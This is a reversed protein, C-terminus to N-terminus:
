RASSAVLPYNGINLDKLFADINHVRGLLVDRYGTRRFNGLENLSRALERRQGMLSTVLVNWEHMIVRKVEDV